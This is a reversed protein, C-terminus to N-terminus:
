FGNRRIGGRRSEEVMNCSGAGLQCSSRVMKLVFKGMDVVLM